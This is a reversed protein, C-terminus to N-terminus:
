SHGPLLLLRGREPNEPINMKRALITSWVGFYDNVQTHHKCRAFKWAGGEEVQGMFIMKLIDLTQGRRVGQGAALKDVEGDDRVRIM